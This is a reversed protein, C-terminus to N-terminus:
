YIINIFFFYCRGPSCVPPFYWHWLAHQNWKLWIGIISGQMTQIHEFGGGFSCNIGNIWTELFLSDCPKIVGEQLDLSCCRQCFTALVRVRMWSQIHIPSSFSNSWLTEETGMDNFSTYKAVLGVSCYTRLILLPFYPEIQWIKMKFFKTYGPASEWDM